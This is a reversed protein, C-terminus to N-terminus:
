LDVKKFDFEKEDEPYQSKGALYGKRWELHNWEHTIPHYPNRHKNFLFAKYGERYYKNDTM